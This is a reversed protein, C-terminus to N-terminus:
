EEPALLIPCPILMPEIMRYFPLANAKKMAHRRIIYGCADALQLPRSEKSNGFYITDIIQELKSIPLNPLLPRSRFVSLFGKMAEAAHAHDAIWLIRENPNYTKILNEVRLACAYFALGQALDLTAQEDVPKTFKTERVAQRM